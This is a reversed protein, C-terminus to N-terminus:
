TDDIKLWNFIGRVGSVADSFTVVLPYLQVFICECSCCWTILQDMSVDLVEREKHARM